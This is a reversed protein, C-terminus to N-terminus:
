DDGPFDLETIFLPDAFCVTVNYATDEEAYTHTLQTDNNEAIAVNDEIVGDGWDITATTAGTSTVWVEFTTGGITTDAVFQVCNNFIPPESETTKPLGGGGVAHQAMIQAMLAQQEMLYLNYRQTQEHIPLNRIYQLQTFHQWSMPNPFLM